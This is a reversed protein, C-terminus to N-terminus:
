INVTYFVLSCLGGRHEDRVGGSPWPVGSTVANALGQWAGAKQCRLAEDVAGERCPERQLSCSLDTEEPSVWCANSPCSKWVLAALM